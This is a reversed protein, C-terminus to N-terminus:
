PKAALRAQLDLIWKQDAPSLRDLPIAFAKKEILLRAQNQKLITPSAAIPPAAPDLPGAEEWAILKGLLTKGDRSIWPRLPSLTLYTVQRVSPPAPSATTGAAATSSGVPKPHFTSPTAPLAQAPSPCPLALLLAAALGPLFANM